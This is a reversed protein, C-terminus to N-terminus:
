AIKHSDEEVRNGNCIQEFMWVYFLLEKELLEFQGLLSKDSFKSKISTFVNQIPVFAQLKQGSNDPLLTVLSEFFQKKDMLSIPNTPLFFPFNEPTIDQEYKKQKWSEENDKRESYISNDTLM